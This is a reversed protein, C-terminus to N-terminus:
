LLDEPIVIIKGVKVDEITINNYKCIEYISKRIDVNDRCHEKVINWLTDGSTICINTKEEKCIKEKHANFM